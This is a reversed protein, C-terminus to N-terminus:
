GRLAAAEAALRTIGAWDGAQVLEKPAVWSGGVCVVNPLGLYTPANKLSVGGTPCFQIEQLPSALAKLYNPGGAPGAPFFKLLRLGKDRAVMAESATAVGPLIPVGLAIAADILETTSGPSVLFRAGAAVAARAQEADLVTGAGVIAGPIASMARIAELAVPTRMTVELAPLGGNVLATGLPVADELRDIILVPVVPARTLVALLAAHDIM